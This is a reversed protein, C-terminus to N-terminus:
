KRRSTRVLDHYLDILVRTRAAPSYFTAAVSKGNQALKGSLGPVSFVNHMATSLSGFDSPEVLLGNVENEIMEPVGGVRTAVIPIGATMAELLVNPSGEMLSPLALVDAALYYARPDGVHGALTLRESVGLSRAARTLLHQEPGDGVIVLSADYEPHNRRLSALAKILHIHGKEASLRGVALIMRSGSTLGLQERLERVLRPSQDRFSAPDIANPVVRIMSSGIGVSELLRKYAASVTVVRHAARLSWRDLKNYIRMKSDTATYGHHFAIWPYQRSLGSLRLLFHSKVSHTEIIDPRVRKAVAKLGAVVRPDFRFGESIVQVKIGLDRASRIFPNTPHELDSRDMSRSGQRSRIASRARQFTVIQADITGWGTALDCGGRARKAFDLLNKAIGSVVATEVLALVKICLGSM